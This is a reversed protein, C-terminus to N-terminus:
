LSVHELWTRAILEHGAPTPHIGDAAWYAARARELADDFASQLPVFVAGVDAALRKVVARRAALDRHWANDFRELPLLFPECLVLKAKPLSAATDELLLKYVAEYRKITVGNQMMFEHWTDNVGILISIIDPALNLADIKWRAYLDVIRNGSVGRNLIEVSDAPKEFTLQAALLAPYGTGLGGTTNPGSDERNRGADTISDGQFLIRAM